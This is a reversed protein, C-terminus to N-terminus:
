TSAPVKFCSRVKEVVESLKWDSKVLYYSPEDKVIGGMIREDAPLNTLIIVPVKKGWESAERIKSLVEMGDVKPMLIDLLIIDPQETAALSLAIEGDEATIVECGERAFKDRLASLMAPEDEAILIKKHILSRDTDTDM